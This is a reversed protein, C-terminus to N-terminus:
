PKVKKLLEDITDMAAKATKWKESDMKKKEIKYRSVPGMLAAELKTKTNRFKFFLESSRIRAPTYSECLFRDTDLNGILGYAWDEDAYEMKRIAAIIDDWMKFYSESGPGSM